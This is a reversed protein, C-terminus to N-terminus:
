KFMQLFNYYHQVFQAEQKVAIKSLIPILMTVLNDAVMCACGVMSNLYSATNKIHPIYSMIEDDYEM